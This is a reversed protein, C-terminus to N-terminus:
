VLGTHLRLSCVRDGAGQVTKAEEGEKGLQVGGRAGQAPKLSGIGEQNCTELTMRRSMYVVIKDRKTMRRLKPVAGHGQGPSPPVLTCNNDDNDQHLWSLM